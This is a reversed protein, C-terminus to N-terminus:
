KRLKEVAKRVDSARLLSDSKTDEMINMGIIKKDELEYTISRGDEYHVIISQM